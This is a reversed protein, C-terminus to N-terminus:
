RYAQKTYSSASQLVFCQKVKGGCSTGYHSWKKSDSNLLLQLSM